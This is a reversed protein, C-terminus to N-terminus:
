KNLIYKLTKIQTIASARGMEKRYGSLMNKYKGDPQCSLWNGYGADIADVRKNMTTLEKEVFEYRPESEIYRLCTRLFKIRKQAAKYEKQDREIRNRDDIMRDISQKIEKTTILSNNAKM